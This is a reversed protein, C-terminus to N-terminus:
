WTDYIDDDPSDWDQGWLRSLYGRVESDDDADDVAVLCTTQGASFVLWHSLPDGLPMTRPTGVWTPAAMAPLHAVCGRALLTVEAGFQESGSPRAPRRIYYKDFGRRHTDVDFMAPSGSAVTRELASTM